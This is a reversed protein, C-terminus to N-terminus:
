VMSSHKLILDTTNRIYSKMYNLQQEDAFLLILGIIIGVFILIILLNRLLVQTQTIIFTIIRLPITIFFTFLRTLLTIGRYIPYTIRHIRDILMLYGQYGAYFPFFFALIIQVIYRICYPLSSLMNNFTTIAYHLLNFLQLIGRILNYFFGDSKLLDIQHHKDLMHIDFSDEGEM